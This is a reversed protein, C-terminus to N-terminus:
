SISNGSRVLEILRQADVTAYGDIDNNFFAWVDHAAAQWVLIRSAWRQLDETSYGSAYLAGPGHFRIFVTRATVMESYPFGVGSQSIVLGINHLALQDLVPDELWSLHRVELAFQFQSYQTSLLQLFPEVRDASYKLTAPLQVLVPGLQQHIPALAAFFRQLPEEPDLLRKIHTLYRSMKPCFRFSQPVTSAWKEVTEPTPTGYFTTNVETCDFVSAYIRLYDEPRTGPQYFRGRWHKYSWGSTGIHISGSM